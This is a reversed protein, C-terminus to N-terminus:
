EKHSFKKPPVLSLPGDGQGMLSAMLGSMNEMLMKEDFQGSGNETMQTACKQAVSEIM